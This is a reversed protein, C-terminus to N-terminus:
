ETDDTDEASGYTEVTQMGDTSYRLTWEDAALESAHVRYHNQVNQTSPLYRVTITNPTVSEVIGSIGEDWTSHKAWILTGRAIEEVNILRDTVETILAM